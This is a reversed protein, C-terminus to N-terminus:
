HVEVCSAASGSPCTTPLPPLLVCHSHAALYEVAGANHAKEAIRQANDNDSYKVTTCPDAGRELLLKVMEVNGSKAADMLPTEGGLHSQHNVDAGKGLLFRAVELRKGQAAGSLPTEGDGAEHNVSHGQVVLKMVQELEGMRAANLLFADGLPGASCVKMDLREWTSYPVALLLNGLLFGGLLLWESRSFRLKKLLGFLLMAGAFLVGFPLILLGLLFLSPGTHVLAFGVMQPGNACTLITSEYVIRIIFISQGV